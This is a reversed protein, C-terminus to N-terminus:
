YLFGFLWLPIKHGSGIEIDDAVVFSNDVDKIQEFTKSKGGIEFLYKEDVLFDGIKSYNIKHQSSIQNVFFQERITGKDSSDCYSFNLNTNNLYLKEPKSLIANGKAVQKVMKTLSGAELYHLYSYLTNRNIEIKSSLRSINLEYPKSECLLSLLKKLKFINKPEINFIMPLDSELVVNIIELLKQNYMNINQKYFPYYGYRLYKELYEFPKMRENLAFAIEIHNDLIDALMYSDFKMGTEYEIFERFSMGNVRHLVARRSLDAKSHELKLASSGSFIVRLDFTDYISKLEIEFNPYKHIEDIALVEGGRQSFAEAIEYLSYKAVHFHDASFYLKKELPVGLEKLYQLIFTTKGIGRSGIIGILKDEMDLSDHMYRKFELSTNQLQTFFINQLESIMSSGKNLTNLM